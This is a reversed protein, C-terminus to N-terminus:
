ETGAPIWLSGSLGSTRDRVVVRIRGAQGDTSVIKQILFGTDLANLYGEETLSIALLESPLVSVTGDEASQFFAAFDIEGHRRDNGPALTLDNLDILVLLQYSDPDDASVAAQGVLGISTAELPSSLVEALGPQTADESSGFAFYGPRHRIDLGARGPVEVDITRFSGGDGPASPYFGISYVMAADGVAQSIAEAVGNTGYYGRGGTMEAITRMVGQVYSDDDPTGPGRIDVPYVAINNSTLLHGVEEMWLLTPLDVEQALDTAQRPYFTFPFRGSLWVVNKRGPLGELRHAIVELGQLTRQARNELFYDGSERSFQGAFAGRGGGVGQFETLGRDIGATALGTEFGAGSDSSELALSHEPELEGAIRILEQPNGTYDHIISFENGLQYLAVRGLDDFSQMFELLLDNMFVQDSTPTNLRDVLVVTAAVPVAGRWDRRNSAIGAPLNVVDDSDGSAPVAEFVTLEQRVGSDFVVFDDEALDTVAGGADTVVVEVMVLQTSVRLTDAEQRAELAVAPLGALVASLFAITRRHPTPM